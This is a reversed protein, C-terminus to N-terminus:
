RTGGKGKTLIFVGLIILLIPWWYRLSFFPFFRHLLYYVGGIILATGWILHSRQNNNDNMTTDASGTFPPPSTSENNPESKPSSATYTAENSGPSNPIIFMALIYLFIGTGGIFVALAWGLRILTPDIRFYEGLGGCVGDIIKNTRSKYLNDPM